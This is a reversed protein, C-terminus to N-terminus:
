FLYQVGLSIITDTHKTKAADIVVPDIRTFSGPTNVEVITTQNNSEYSQYKAAAVFYWRETVPATWQLGASLGRGVGAFNYEGFTIPKDADRESNLNVDAFKLDLFAYAVSLAVSMRNNFIWEYNGGLFIGEEEYRTDKHGLIFNYGIANAQFRTYKYGGFLSFGFGADMGVTLSYDARELENKWPDEPDFEEFNETSVLINSNESPALEVLLKAYVRDFGVSGWFGFNYLSEELDLRIEGPPAVINLLNGDMDLLRVEGVSNTLTFDIDRIGVNAGAAFHLEQDAASLSVSVTLLAACFIPYIKKM